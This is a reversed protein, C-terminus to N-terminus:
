SEPNGDGPGRRYAGDGPLDADISLRDSGVDGAAPAASRCSARADAIRPTM